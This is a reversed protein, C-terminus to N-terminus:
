PGLFTKIKEHDNGILFEDAKMSLVELATSNLVNESM